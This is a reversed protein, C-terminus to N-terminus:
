GEVKAPDDSVARGVVRRRLDADYSPVLRGRFVGRDGDSHGIHVLRIRLCLMSTVLDDV